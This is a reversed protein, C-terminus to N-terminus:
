MYNAAEIYVMVNFDGGVIEHTIGVKNLQCELIGTKFYNNLDEGLL